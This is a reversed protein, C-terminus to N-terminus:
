PGARGDEAAARGQDDGGAPRGSGPGDARVVRRLDAARGAGFGAGSGVTKRAVYPLILYGDIFQVAVYVGIAWVGTEPGASFGILVMLVGSIIAGVNPIFALIGTLL